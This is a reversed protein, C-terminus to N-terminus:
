SKELVGIAEALTKCKAYCLGPCALTPDMVDPVVVVSFGGASGALLGNKSDEFVVCQLASEAGLARMALQFIEPDPKSKTVQDGGIIADFYATIKADELYQRAVSTDSSTAVACPINQEKLWALLERLGPKVPVGFKAFYDNMWARFRKTCREYDEPCGPFVEPFMRNTTEHNLGVLQLIGERTFRYGIEPGIAEVFGRIFLNETDFMLGDMDFIAYSFKM